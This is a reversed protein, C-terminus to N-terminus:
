TLSRIWIADGWDHGPEWQTAVRTFAPLMADLQEIRACQRYVDARNVELYVWSLTDLLNSAGALVRDEYGQVDAVLGDAVQVVLDLPMVLVRELGTFTVEPHEHLHNAPELLSSSQGNSALHLDAITVTEGAAAQVVIDEPYRRRVYQAAETRPEFWIVQSGWSRYLPGEEGVNGGVHVIRRRPLSGLYQDPNILM